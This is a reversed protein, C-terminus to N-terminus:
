MKKKNEGNKYIFGTLKKFVSKQSDLAALAGTQGRM